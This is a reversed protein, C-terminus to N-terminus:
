DCRSLSLPRLSAAIADDDQAVDIAGSPLCSAHKSRTDISCTTANVTENTLKPRSEARRARRKFSVDVANERRHAQAASTRRTIMVSVIDSLLRVQACVPVRRGAARREGVDISPRSTSLRRGALADDGATGGIADTLQSRIPSQPARTQRWHAPAVDDGGSRLARTAAAALSVSAGGDAGGDAATPRRRDVFLLM